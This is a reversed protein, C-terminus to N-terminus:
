HDTLNKPMLADGGTAHGSSARLPPKAPGPLPRAKQAVCEGWWGHGGGELFFLKTSLGSRREMEGVGDTIVPAHPVTVQISQIYKLLYFIRMIYNNTFAKVQFKLKVINFAFTFAKVITKLKCTNFTFTLAKVKTKM